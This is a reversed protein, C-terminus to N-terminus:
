LGISIKYKKIDEIIILNIKRIVNDKKIMKRIM